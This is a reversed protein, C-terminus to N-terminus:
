ANFDVCAGTRRVRASVQYDRRARGATREIRRCPQVRRLPLSAHAAISEFVGGHTGCGETVVESQREDRFAAMAVRFLPDVRDNRAQEGPPRRRADELRSAPRGAPDRQRRSAPEDAHVDRRPLEVLVRNEVLLVEAVQLGERQRARTEVQDQAPVDDLVQRMRM